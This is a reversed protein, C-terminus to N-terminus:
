VALCRFLLVKCYWDSNEMLSAHHYVILTIYIPYVNLNHITMRARFLGSNQLKRLLWDQQLWGLLSEQHLEQHLHTVTCAMSM